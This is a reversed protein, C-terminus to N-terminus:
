LLLEHNFFWITCMILHISTGAETTLDGDGYVAKKLKKKLHEEKNLPINRFLM